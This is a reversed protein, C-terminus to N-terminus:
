SLYREAILIAVAAQRSTARLKTLINSVHYKATNESVGLIEAIDLITKGDALLDAVVQERRTLCRVRSSLSLRKRCRNLHPVVLQGLLMSRPGPLTRRSAFSILFSADHRPSDCFASFGYRLGWRNRRAIVVREEPSLVRQYADWLIVGHREGRALRIELERRVPDHGLFGREAYESMWPTPNSLNVLCVPHSPGYSSTEYAYLVHELGLVDAFRFISKHLAAESEHHLCADTFALTESLERRTLLSLPPTGSAGAGSGSDRVL